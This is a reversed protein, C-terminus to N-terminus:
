VLLYAPVEEVIWEVHDGEVFPLSKEQNGILKFPRKNPVFSSNTLLYDENPENPVLCHPDIFKMCLNQDVMSLARIAKREGYFGEFM